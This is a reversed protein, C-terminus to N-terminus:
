VGASRPRDDYEGYREPNLTHNLLNLAHWAVAAWHYTIWEEGDVTETDTDEGGWALWAHRMMADFSLSQNYGYQFNYPDDYKAAGKAYLKGLERMADVPITFYQEPKSDKRGQM